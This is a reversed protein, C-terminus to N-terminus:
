VLDGREKPLVVTLIFEPSAAVTMSGREQEIKRRLSGLGGGEVIESTPPNGDNRFQATFTSENQRLAIFLTKAEAHSIANTMAEAAAQVFLKQLWEEEPAEGNISLTVGTAKAARTLMAMPNEDEPPEAEKRLMAINRQWQELPAPQTDGEDLIYRRSALLAQGLESHIRAKIELRERSRTLEGVNEGYQRLRLNMAALRVNEEKLEDTIQQLQTIEGATLQLIGDLTERAFVWVSGDPLRFTPNDGGSLMEVNERVQGATLLEWFLAANQLDRGIITHCLSAMRRNVLVVRGNEYYFCLGSSVKDFGEKISSRTLMTRRYNWERCFVFVDYALVVVLLLAPILVPWRCFADVPPYSLRSQRTIRLSAMYFITVIGMALAGAPLLLGPLRYRRPYTTFFLCIGFCLTIFFCAAFVTRQYLLLDYFSTM